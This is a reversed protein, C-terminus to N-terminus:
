AADVALDHAEAEHGVVGDVVDLHLDAVLDHGDDGSEHHQRGTDAVGGQERLQPRAEGVLGAALRALLQDLAALRHLRLVQQAQPATVQGLDAPAEAVSVM